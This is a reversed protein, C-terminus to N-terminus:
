RRYEFTLNITLHPETYQPPLPPLQRANIVARRSELDLIPNNSPKAVEIQTLMGDRRITYRVVVEGAAGQKPNWQRRILDLMTQLYEPCCFNEVNLATLGQGGGGGQSLGGFPVTVGGTEV